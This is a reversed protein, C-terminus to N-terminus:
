GCLWAKFATPDVRPTIFQNTTLYAIVRGGKVFKPPMRSYDNFPSLQNYKNGYTGYNNFISNANYPNGYPGYKNALSENDYKNQSVKGLFTGDAAELSSGELDRFSLGSSGSEILQGVSGHEFVDEYPYPLKPKRLRKLPRLPVLPRLPRLPVMARPRTPETKNLVIRDDELIYGKFFGDSSYFLNGNRVFGIWEANPAFVNGNQVFAVYDGGSNFLYRVSM